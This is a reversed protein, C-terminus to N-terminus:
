VFDKRQLFVGDLEQNEGMMFQVYMEGFQYARTFPHSDTIRYVSRFQHLFGLFLGPFIQFFRVGRVLISHRFLLFFLSHLFLRGLCDLRSCLLFRSLFLLRFGFGFDLTFLLGLLFRFGLLFAFWAFRLHNGGIALFDTVAMRELAGGIWCIPVEGGLHVSYLQFRLFHVCRIQGSVLLLFQRHRLQHLLIIRSFEHRLYRFFRELHRLLQGTRISGNGDVLEIDILFLVLLSRIVALILEIYLHAIGLHRCHSGTLVQIGVEVAHRSRSLQYFLVEPFAQVQLRGVLLVLKGFSHVGFSDTHGLVM